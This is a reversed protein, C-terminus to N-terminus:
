GCPNSTGDGGSGPGHWGSRGCRSSASLPPLRVRDGGHGNVLDVVYDVTGLVTVVLGAYLAVNQLAGRRVLWLAASYVTVAAGVLVTVPGTSGNAKYWALWVAGALCAVSLFWVVGALRQIAPERVRRVVIGTLLFFVAAGALVGM